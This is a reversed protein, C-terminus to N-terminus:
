QGKRAKTKTKTKQLVKLEERVQIKQLEIPLSRVESRLEDFDAKRPLEQLVAEHRDIDARAAEMSTETSAERERTAIAFASALVGITLISGVLWTRFRALGQLQTKTEIIRANQSNLFEDQENQRIKEECAHAPIKELVKVRGNLEIVGNRAETAVKEVKPLYLESMLRTRDDIRAVVTALETPNLPIPTPPPSLLRTM